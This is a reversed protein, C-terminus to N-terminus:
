SALHSQGLVDFGKCEHRALERFREAAASCGDSHTAMALAIVASNPLGDISRRVVGRAVLRASVLPMLAVRTGSQVLGIVTQVQTAEQSVRPALGAQQFALKVLAHLGPVRTSAYDIFPARALRDLTLRQRRALPHRTPLVVCFVDRELIEFRLASASGTPYCVLGIDLESSAVLALFKWTPRNVCYWTSMPIAHAVRM